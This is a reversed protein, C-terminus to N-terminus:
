SGTAVPPVFIWRKPNCEELTIEGHWDKQKGTGNGGGLKGKLKGDADKDVIGQAPITGKKGQETFRFLVTLRVKDEWMPDAEEAIVVGVATAGKECQGMEDFLDEKYLVQADAEQGLQVTTTRGDSLFISAPEEM